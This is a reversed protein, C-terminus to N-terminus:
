SSHNSLNNFQQEPFNRVFCKENFYNSYCANLFVSEYLWFIQEQHAVRYRWQYQFQQWGETIKTLQVPEVDATLKSKFEVTQTTLDFRFRDILLFNDVLQYQLRNGLLDDGHQDIIVRDEFLSKAPPINVPYRKPLAKRVQAAQGTMQSKDWQRIIVQLILQKM